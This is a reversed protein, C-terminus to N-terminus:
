AALEETRPADAAPMAQEDGPGPAGITGVV